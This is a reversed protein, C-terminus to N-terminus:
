EQLYGKFRILKSDDQQYTIPKPDLWDVIPDKIAYAFFHNGSPKYHGIFYRDMYEDMTLNFKKFDELHVMNMDFYRFNHDKIFDMMEQDYRAQGMAMPKFVRHPDFHVLMLEKGHASCFDRTKKLINKTAEFSYKNMLVRASNIMKSGDSLDLKPIQLIEALKALGQLDLDSNIRNNAILHLQVMLDDKLNEYMFEPDAMKYVDEKRGLRNPKEVLQGKDLDM